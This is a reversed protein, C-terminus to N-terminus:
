RELPSREDCKVVRVDDFFFRSLAFVVVRLSDGIRAHYQHAGARNEGTKRDVFRELERPQSRHKAAVLPRAPYVKPQGDAKDRKEAHM